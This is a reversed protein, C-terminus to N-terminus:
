QNLLKAADLVKQHISNLIIKADDLAGIVWGSGSIPDCFDFHNDCRNEIMYDGYPTKAIWLKYLPDIDSEVPTDIFTFELDAM